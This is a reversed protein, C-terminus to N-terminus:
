SLRSKIWAVAADTAKGPNYFLDRAMARRVPGGNRPHALSWRVAEVAEDPWRATVGGKRGWTELDLSRGKARMDELLEPVDLF